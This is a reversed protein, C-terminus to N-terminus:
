RWGVGVGFYGITLNLPTFQPLRNFSVDVGTSRVMHFFPVVSFRRSVRLYGGVGLMYGLGDASLLDPAQDEAYRGGGLGGQIYIPLRELPLIQVMAYASVYERVSDASSQRWGFVEVGLRVRESISGGGALFGSLGTKVAPCRACDPDAIGAGAGGTIWFGPEWFANQAVAPMPSVVLLLGVCGFAFRHM